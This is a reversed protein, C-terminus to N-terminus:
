KNKKKIIKGQFINNAYKNLNMIEPNNLLFNTINLYTIKKKNKKLYLLIKKIVILDNRYDLTYRIHSYNKNNLYTKKKLNKDQWFVNTVHEKDKKSLSHYKKFLKSKFIEIDSGNPFKSKKIPLTNSIYDLDFKIFNKKMKNLLELDLLPCDSTIRIINDINFKKATLKYRQYVDNESGRFYYTNNKKCINVIKNDNPSKTTAVVLNYNTKKILNILFSLSNYNNYINKLIKGPFRTSGVRAQLVICFKM